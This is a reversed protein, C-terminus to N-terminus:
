LLSHWLLQLGNQFRVALQAVCASTWESLESGATGCLDFDM